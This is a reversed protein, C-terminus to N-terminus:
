GKKVEIVPRLALAQTALIPTGNLVALTAEGETNIKSLSWSNETSRQWTGGADSIEASTALRVYGSTNEIGDSFTMNVLKTDKIEKLKEDQSLWNEVIKKATSKNWSYDNTTTSYYCYGDKVETACMKIQCSKEDCTGYFNTNTTEIESTSKIEENTLTRNLILVVTGPETDTGPKDEIVQWTHGAFNLSSNKPYDKNAIQLNVFKKTSLAEKIDNKMARLLERNQANKTTSALMIMLFLLFFSYILSTAIFGNKKKM